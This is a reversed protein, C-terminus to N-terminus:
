FQISFGIALDHSNVDYTVDTWIAHYTRVGASIGWDPTKFPDSTLDTLKRSAFLGLRYKDGAPKTNVTIEKSTDKTTSTSSDEKTKSDEVIVETKTGDPATVIKTEKHTDTQKKEVTVIKEVIKEVIKTDTQVQITPKTIKAHTYFGMGFVCLALLAYLITKYKSIVLWM